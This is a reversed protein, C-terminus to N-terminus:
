PLDHSRTQKSLTNLATQLNTPPSPMTIPKPDTSSRCTKDMPVLQAKSERNGRSEKSVKRAKRMYGPIPRASLGTEPLKTSIRPLETRDRLATRVTVEMWEPM